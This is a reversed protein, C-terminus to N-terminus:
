VCRVLSWGVAQVTADSNLSEGKAEKRMRKHQQTNNRTQLVDETEHAVLLVVVRRQKGSLQQLVAQLVRVLLKARLHEALQDLLHRGVRRRLGGLATPLEDDEAQARERGCRVELVVELHVQSREAVRWGLEDVEHVVRQVSSSPLVCGRLVLERLDQLIRM